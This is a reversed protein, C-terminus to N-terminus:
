GNTCECGRVLVPYMAKVSKISLAMAPAEEEGWMLAMEAAEAHDPAVVLHTSWTKIQDTRRLKVRWLLGQKTTGACLQSASVVRYPVEPEEEHEERDDASQCSDCIVYAPEGGDMPMEEVESDCVHKGCHECENVWDVM